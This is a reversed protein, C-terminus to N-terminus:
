DDMMSIALSISNKSYVVLAVDDDTYVKIRKNGDAGQDIIVRALTDVVDPEGRTESLVVLTLATCSSIRSL